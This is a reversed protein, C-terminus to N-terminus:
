RYIDFFLGTSLSVAKFESMVDFKLQIFWINKGTFQETGLFFAGGPQFQKKEESNSGSKEVIYNLSPGGGAYFGSTPVFFYKADFSFQIDSRKQDDKKGYQYSLTPYVELGKTLEGFNTSIGGILGTQENDPAYSIGILPAISELGLDQAHLLQTYLLLSILIFLCTFLKSFM